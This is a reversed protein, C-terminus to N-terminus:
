PMVAIAEIEVQVDLPLRAVEVCSRAPKDPGWYQGYVANLRAFNNLDKLFVTVKVVHELDTGAAKLVAEVNLICQRVHDEFEGEAIKKTAPDLPVQGSVYVFGGAAIGPTYPSGAVAAGTFITQKQM